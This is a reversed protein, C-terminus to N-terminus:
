GAASAKLRNWKVGFAMVSSSHNPAPPRALGRRRRAIPGAPAAVEGGGEAIVAPARGTGSGPGTIPPGCGGGGGAGAAARPRPRAPQECASTAESRSCVQWREIKLEEELRCRHCFVRM